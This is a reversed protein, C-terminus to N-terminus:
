ASGGGDDESEWLGIRALKAALEQWTAGEADEFRARVYDSVAAWDFRDVILLHRGLLFGGGEQLRAPLAAPTVVEVQFREQGPGGVPGAFVQVLVDAVEPDDPQGDEM